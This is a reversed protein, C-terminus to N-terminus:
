AWTLCPLSFSHKGQSGGPRSPSAEGRLACDKSHCRVRVGQFAAAKPLPSCPDGSQLRRWGLSSQFSGQGALLPVVFGPLPM